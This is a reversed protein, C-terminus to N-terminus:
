SIERCFGCKSLPSDMVEAEFALQMLVVHNKLLLPSLVKLGLGLLSSNGAQAHGQEGAEGWGRQKKGGGRNAGLHEEWEGCALPHTSIIIINCSSPLAHIFVWPCASACCLIEVM